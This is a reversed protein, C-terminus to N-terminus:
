SIQQLPMSESLLYAPSIDIDGDNWTPIGADVTVAHFIAKDRLPAFAPRNLLPAFDFIRQEGDAFTLLLKYDGFPVVSQVSPISEPTGAYAIGDVIYM